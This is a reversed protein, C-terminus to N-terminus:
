FYEISYRLCAAPDVEQKRLRRFTKSEIAIM